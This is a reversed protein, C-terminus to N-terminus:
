LQFSINGFLENYVDALENRFFFIALFVLFGWLFFERMVNKNQYQTFRGLFVATPLGLVALFSTKEGGFLGLIIIWNIFYLFALFYFYRKNIDQTPAHSIHDFWSILILALVPILSWIHNQWYDLYFSSQIIKLWSLEDMLYLIQIGLALPLSFGLILLIMVRINLLQKYIYNFVLFGALFVAPPYFFGAISLMIGIDFAYNKNDPNREAVLLRWYIASSFFLCISIRFDLAIESFVFIWILFYWLPIGPSKFFGSSIFFLYTLGLTLVFFIIGLIQEWGHIEPIVRYFFLMFFAIGLIIQALFSKASLIKALM